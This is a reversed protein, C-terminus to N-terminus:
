LSIWLLYVRFKACCMKLVSQESHLTQVAHVALEQPAGYANALKRGILRDHEASLWVASIKVSKPPKGSNRWAFTLM